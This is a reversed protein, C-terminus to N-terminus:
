KKTALWLGFTVFGIVIAFAWPDVKSGITREAVSQERMAPTQKGTLLAVWTM